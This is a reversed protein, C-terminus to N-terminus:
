IKFKNILRHTNGLSKLGVNHIGGRYIKKKQM